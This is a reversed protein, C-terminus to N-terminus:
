FLECSFVERWNEEEEREKEVRSHHHAAKLKGDRSRSTCLSVPSRYRRVKTTRFGARPVDIFNRPLADTRGSLATRRGNASGRPYELDDVDVSQKM